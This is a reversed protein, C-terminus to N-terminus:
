VYWQILVLQKSKNAKNDKTKEEAEKEATLFEIIGQCKIYAQELRKLNNTLDKINKDYVM